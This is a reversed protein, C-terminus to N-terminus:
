AMSITPNLPADEAGAGAGAGNTIEVVVSGPPVTPVAYEAVSEAVPPTEGDVQDALPRGLPREMLLVPVILPTGVVAPVCIADKVTLSEEPVVADADSEIITLLEPSGGM